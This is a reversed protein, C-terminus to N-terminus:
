GSPQAAASGIRSSRSAGGAREASGRGARPVPISASRAQPSSRAAQAPRTPRQRSVRVSDSLRVLGPTGAKSGDGATVTPPQQQHPAPRCRLEKARARARAPTSATLSHALGRRGIAVAAGAHRTAVSKSTVTGTPGGALVYQWDRGGAKSTYRPDVAIIALGKRHGMAVLRNRFATTPFGSILARFARKRGHKERTKEQEFGLDEVVVAAAGFSHAHELVQALAERIRADRTGASLGNLELPIRVPAGVPNGDANLRALALHDANLDLAVVRGARLQALDPVVPTQEHTWSARLLVKEGRKGPGFSISIATSARATTREVLETVHDVPVPHTLRVRSGVGLRRQVPEPVSVTLWVLGDADQTLTLCPNGGTKGVNGVCTLFLRESAWQQRWQELTLGADTLHHRTNLLRRGGFVVAYDKGALRRDTEVLRGRLVDLRRRKTWWENHTAYGDKCTGCGRRQDCGCGQRTPVALRRELTAIGRQLSLKHRWLGERALKVQADNARVISGAYRAQIGFTVALHKARANQPEGRLAAALDHARAVALHGAIARLLQRDAPTLRLRTGVSTGGPPAVVRTPLLPRPPM